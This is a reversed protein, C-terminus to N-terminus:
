DLRKSFRLVALTLAVATFIALAALEPMMISLDAGRLIIGRILRNFHTLLLIEAIGRAIEPMGAFPFMFGSLPIPPPFFFFTM